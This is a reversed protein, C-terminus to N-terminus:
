RLKGKATSLCSLPVSILDKVREVIERDVCRQRVQFVM